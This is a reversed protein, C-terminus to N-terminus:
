LYMRASIVIRIFWSSFIANTACLFSERKNKNYRYHILSILRKTPMHDLKLQLDFYRSGSNSSSTLNNFNAYNLWKHCFREEGSIPAKLKTNKSSESLIFQELM